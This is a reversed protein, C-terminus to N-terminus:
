ASLHISGNALYVHTLLPFSSPVFLIYFALEHMWFFFFFSYCTTVLSLDCYAENILSLSLSFFHENALPFMFANKDVTCNFAHRHVGVHIGTKGHLLCAWFCVYRILAFGWLPKLKQAVLLMRLKLNFHVDWLVRTVEVCRKNHLKANDSTFVDGM